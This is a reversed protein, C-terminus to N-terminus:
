MDIKLQRWIWCDGDGEARQNRDKEVEARSAVLSKRGRAAGKGDGFDRRGFGGHGSFLARESERHAGIRLIWTREMTELLGSREKEMQTTADQRRNAEEELDNSGLKENKPGKCLHAADVVETGRRTDLLEFIRIKLVSCPIRWSASVWRSNKVNQLYSEMEVLLTRERANRPPNRDEVEVEKVEAPPDTPPGHWTATQQLPTGEPRPLARIWGWEPVAKFPSSQPTPRNRAEPVAKVLTGEVNM